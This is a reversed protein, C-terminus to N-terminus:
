KRKGYYCVFYIIKGFKELSSFSLKKCLKGSKELSQLFGTLTINEFISHAIQFSIDV